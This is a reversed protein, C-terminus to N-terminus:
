QGLKRKILKIVSGIVPVHQYVMCGLDFYDRHFRVKGEEFELYSMGPLSIEKGQNLKPHSFTMTWIVYSRNEVRDASSINFHCYNINQFLSEFYAKLAELGDIRHAPDQFVITEHYIDELTDISQGNLNTYIKVFRELEESYQKM